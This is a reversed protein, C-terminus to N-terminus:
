HRAETPPEGLEGLEGIAVIIRLWTDAGENDGKRRMVEVMERARAIARDGHLQIFHHAMRQIDVDSTPM